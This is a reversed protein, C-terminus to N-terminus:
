KAKFVKHFANKSKEPAVLKWRKEVADYDPVANPPACEREGTHPNWQYTWGSNPKGCPGLKYEEGFTRYRAM